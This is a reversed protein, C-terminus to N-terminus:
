GFKSELSFKWSGTMLIFPFPSGCCVFSFFWRSVLEGLTVHRAVVSLYSPEYQEYARRGCLAVGCRRLPGVASIWQLLPLLPLWWSHLWLWMAMLHPVRCCHCCVIPPLSQWLHFIFENLCVYLFVYSSTDMYVYPLYIKDNFQRPYSLHTM